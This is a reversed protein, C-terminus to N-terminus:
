FFKLSDSLTSRVWQNPHTTKTTIVEVNCNNFRNKLYNKFAEACGASRSIGAQCQFVYNTIGANLMIGLKEALQNAQRDTMGFYYKEGEVLMKSRDIDDFCLLVLGKIYPKFKRYKGKLIPKQNLDDSGYIAIAGFDCNVRLAEIEHQGIVLLKFEKSEQNNM